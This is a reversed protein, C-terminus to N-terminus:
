VFPMKQRRMEEPQHISTVVLILLSHVLLMGGSNLRGCTQSDHEANVLHVRKMQPKLTGTPLIGGVALGNWCVSASYTGKKKM